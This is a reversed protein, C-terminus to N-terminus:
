PPGEQYEDDHTQDTEGYAKAVLTMALMDSQPDVPALTFAHQTILRPLTSIDSIFQALQHYGGQVRIDLPYETYASRAIVPQLQITEIVLQNDDAANIISDLLAPTDDHPTLTARVQVRQAELEALQTRTHALLGAAHVSGRYDNLLRVEQRQAAALASRYDSVWWWGTLTLAVLFVLVGSLVKVAWPWAGAEQLDLAQWDLMRLRQWEERWLQVYRKM